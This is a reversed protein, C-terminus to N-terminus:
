HATWKAKTDLGGKEKISGSTMKKPGGAMQYNARWILRRLTDKWASKGLKTKLNASAAQYVPKVTYKSIHGGNDLINILKKEAQNFHKQNMSNTGPALNEKTGAGGLRDSLMHMRVYGPTAGPHTMGWGLLRLWSKPSKAPPNAGAGVGAGALAAATLELKEAIMSKVKGGNMKTDWRGAAKMWPAKSLVKWMQVAPSGAASPGAVGEGPGTRAMPGAYRALLDSASQGRVVREAVADAHREHVDGSRGVGAPGLGGRQQIIHAAEHAAVRLSPPRAFAIRERNAYGGTTGMAASAEAAAGGVATRIGSINHNAGFARAIREAHPLPARAQKVGVDAIRQVDAKGVVGGLAQIDPPLRSRTSM